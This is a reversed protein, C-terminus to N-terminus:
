PSVGAVQDASGQATTKRRLLSRMTRYDGAQPLFDRWACKTLRVFLWLALTAEIIYAASTAVAVGLLGWRPLLVIVLTVNLAVGVFLTISTLEPRGTGNFYAILVKVVCGLVVGPLLILLPVVAPLFAPSLLIAVIPKAFIALLLAAVTVALVAIRCCRIVLEILASQETLVRPLLVINLTEPLIWLRSALGMAAAFLGAQETTGAMAIVIVGMQVDVLTALKGFYYKIGYRYCAATMRWSFAIPSAFRDRALALALGAGALLSGLAYAAVALTVSRTLGCAVLLFVLTVTQNGIRALNYAKLRGLGMFLVTTFVFFVQTVAFAIACVLAPAPVKQVFALPSLMCAAGVGIIMASTIGFSVLQTGLVTGMQARDRGAHYASGMEVGFGLGLVLLQAFIMCIAVEGRGGPGLLWATASGIGISIVIAVVRSAFTLKADKLLSGPASEGRPRPPSSSPDATAVEGAGHELSARENRGDSAAHPAGPATV